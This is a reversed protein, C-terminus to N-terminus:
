VKDLVKRVTHALASISIPKLLLEKIGIKNASEKSLGKSLGTCLIIPINKRISLLEIGLKDGTLKPMTLDTIVLDFDDPQSRFLRLAEISSTLSVVKYGLSELMKKGVETIHPEDDIFLIREDGIPLAEKSVSQSKPTKDIIPLFVNFTSGKGVESDVQIIGGSTTVIGHVVALGMGTGEGQEKTTFFPDFIKNLVDGPIGHGTDRISLCIYPGPTAEPYQSVFSSDLEVNTLNVELIGSKDQMAHGANACLNMVVQHIQTSDGM